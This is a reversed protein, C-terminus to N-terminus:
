IYIYLMIEKNDEFDKWKETLMKKGHETKFRVIRGNFRRVRWKGMKTCFISPKHLYWFKKVWGIYILAGITIIIASEVPYDAIADWFYYAM